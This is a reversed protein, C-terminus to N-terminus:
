VKPRGVTQSLREGLAGFFSVYHGVYSEQGRNLHATLDQLLLNRGHFEGFSVKGFDLTEIRRQIGDYLDIGLADATLRAFRFGGHHAALNM